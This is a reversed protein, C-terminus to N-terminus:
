YFEAQCVGVECSGGTAPGGESHNRSVQLMRILDDETLFVVAMAVLSVVMVLVLLLFGWWFTSFLPQRASENSEQKLVENEPEKAQALSLGDSTSEVISVMCDEAPAAVIENQVREDNQLNDDNHNDTDRSGKSSENNNTTHVWWYQIERAAQIRRRRNARLQVWRVQYARNYLGKLDIKQSDPKTLTTKKSSGSTTLISNRVSRPTVAIRTVSTTPARTASHATDTPNLKNGLSCPTQPTRTASPTLVSGSTTPSDSHATTTPNIKTGSGGEQLGPTQPTRTATPTLVLGMANPTAQQFSNKPNLKIGSGNQLSPTQPTRTATPTQVTGVKSGNGDESDPTQPTRTATPTQLSASTPTQCQFQSGKAHQQSAVSLPTRNTTPTQLGM